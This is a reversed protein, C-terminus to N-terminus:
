VGTQVVSSPAKALSSGSNEFRPTLSMPRDAFVTSLWPPQILTPEASPVGFWIRSCVSFRGLVDILKRSALQPKWYNTVLISLNSICVVHQIVLIGRVHILLADRKGDSADEYDVGLLGNTGNEGVWSRSAAIAGLNKTNYVRQLSPVLVLDRRGNVPYRSIINDYVWAHLGLLRLLLIWM